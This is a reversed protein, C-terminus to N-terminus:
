GRVTAEGRDRLTREPHGFERARNTGVCSVKHGLSFPDDASAHSIRRVPGVETCVKEGLFAAVDEMFNKFDSFWRHKEEVKIVEARLENEQADLEARERAFHDLAASDLTHSSTLM